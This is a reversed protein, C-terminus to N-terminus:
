KTKLGKLRDIDGVIELGTALAIGELLVNGHADTHKVHVRADLTEEVRELMAHRQPAMLLGGRARTAILELTGDRGTLSWRVHTDDVELAVERARTYTSWRYLKGGHKLGVLFGRFAGGLWPIVAVSGILSADPATDIHNSALWVYADPFAKGWDKEIYGRGGTFSHQSREVTLEGTLGHGFSVVAHFCEMFPVHGYWGMAGPARFTVPWPDLEATFSIDGTLQETELHIGATSFRNPGVRVEFHDDSAEFESVDYRHYWARGTTGDLVQVFAEDRTEEGSAGRLGRFIGPIVAWRQSLDASVLKIYWGEFFEKTVGTGHFAEPHRV